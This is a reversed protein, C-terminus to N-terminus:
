RRAAPRTLGLSLQATHGHELQRGNARLIRQEVYGVEGRLVRSWRVGLGVYARNQDILNSSAHPGVSKFLEESASVYGPHSAGAAGLPLTAKLQYRARLSFVVDPVGASGSRVPRDTWREEMRYRHQLAVPGLRQDQLVHQWLRREGFAGAAPFPGYPSNHVVQGGAAVRFRHGVVRQLGARLETQQPSAGLRARQVKAGIQVGTAPTLWVDAGLDVWANASSGVQRPATQARSRTALALAAFAALALALPRLASPVDAARRPPRFHHGSRM